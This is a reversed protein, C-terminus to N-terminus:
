YRVGLKMELSQIKKSEKDGLTPFRRMSYEFKLFFSFKSKLYYNAGLEFKTQHGFVSGEINEIRLQNLMLAYGMYPIIKKNHTLEHRVTWGYNLISLSKQGKNVPFYTYGIPVSIFAVPTNDYGSLKWAYDFLFSYGQNSLSDFNTKYNYQFGTEITYQKNVKDFNEQATLHFNVSFLSILIFLLLEKKM